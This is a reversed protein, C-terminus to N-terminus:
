CADQLVSKKQVHKARRNSRLLNPTSDLTGLYGDQFRTGPHVRYWLQFVYRLTSASCFVDSRVDRHLNQFPDIEVAHAGGISYLFGVQWGALCVFVFM